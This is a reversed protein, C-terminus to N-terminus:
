CFSINRLMAHIVTALQADFYTPAMHSARLDWTDVWCIDADEKERLLFEIGDRSM